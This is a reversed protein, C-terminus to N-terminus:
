ILDPDIKEILTASPNGRGALVCSRVDVGIGDVDQVSARAQCREGNLAIEFDGALNLAAEPRGRRELDGADVM